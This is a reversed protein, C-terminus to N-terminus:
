KRRLALLTIDDSQQAGLTFERLTTLLNDLAIEAGSTDGMVVERLRDDGYFDDTASKAETVGDTFAVLLDGPELRVKEVNFELDPFLGVAPGTPHLYEIQGNKHVLLPPEHGGNIYYLTSRLVDLVGIFVTAFMNADGHHRAIYNNTLLVAKKLATVGVSRKIFSTQFEQPVNVKPTSGEIEQDYHQEAFARLLSRFLAMFLAAGVGKDCVDAVVIAVRMEDALTFVDYFDGAVQRAAEFRAAVEFGYVEPLSSPFFGAQIQRGIELDRELSATYIKDQDMLRKLSLSSHVRARMMVPDFPKPLYDAAGMELCRVIGKIDDLASVMVVPIHRLAEDAKIRELVEFGDMEPMMLDLFILDFERDNELSQQLLELARPGGDALIVTHGENELSRGLVKRNMLDDDVVLMYGYHRM